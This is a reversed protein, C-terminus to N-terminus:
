IGAVPSVDPSSSLRKRAVLLALASGFLAYSAPIPVAAPQQILAPAFHIHKLDRYDSGNVSFRISTSGSCCGEFGIWEVAWQGQSFQFDTTIVDSNQWDHNWWIDQAVIQEHVREGSQQNTIAVGGGRGWDAGVQFSIQTAQALEFRSSMRISHDQANGRIHSTTVIDALGEMSSAMLTRGAEHAQTLQSFDHHGQVQFQSRTYDVDFSVTSAASHASALLSCSLSLLTLPTLHM